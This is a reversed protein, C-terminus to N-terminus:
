QPAPPPAVPAGARSQRAAMVAQRCEASMEAVHARMCQGIRGGGPQVGPCLREADGRCAAAVAPNPANQAVAVSTASCSLAVLVLALRLPKAM